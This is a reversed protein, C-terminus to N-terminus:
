HKERYEDSSWIATLVGFWAQAPPQGGLRANLYVDFIWAAIGLFDPKGGVSLGDPRLLESRYAEQLRHMADLYEGRDLSVPSRPAVPTLSAKGPNRARWEDTHSIWARVNDLSAQPTMGSARSALYVDFVWAAIGLFDPQGGISLGNPRQLETVYMADVEFMARLFEARDFRPGSSPRATAASATRYMLAIAQRDGASPTTAAGMRAGAEAYEPRAAMAPKAVDHVVTGSARAPYHMVSSFDYPTQFRMSAVRSYASQWSEKINETDVTLYADRDPRQHEHLLGLAHGIEHTVTRSSWCSDPLNVFGAEGAQRLRGVSAYCAAGNEAPASARVHLYQTETTRPVCRVGTGAEWLRCYTFFAEQREPSITPEFTVPVVGWPWPDIATTMFSYVAGLPRPDIAIRDRDLVMDGVVVLRSELRPAAKNGGYQEQAVAPAAVMGASLMLSAITGARAM